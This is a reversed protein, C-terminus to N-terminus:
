INKVEQLPWRPRARVALPDSIGLRFRELGAWATMVGNDTCLSVPPATFPISFLSASKQLASRVALNAGVGGSVVFASPYVNMSLVTEIAHSARDKLCLAVTEQLSAAMDDVFGDSLVGYSDVITRVATKLGSFSMDCGARGLMPKPLNFASPNGNKARAEILVGGPYGLGLLKACKDFCEGVADDLTSGLLKYEGVGSVLVFQSHGGSVLLLVYPFAVDSTIRVTLAHAELHNVSVFPKSSVLCLSKAFASGVILGGILGPGTTAAVADIDKFDLNAQKLAAKMCPALAELHARAAIEPVVGGYPSHKVLQSATVNALINRKDDVIGVGTDDCSSEIGLVIM